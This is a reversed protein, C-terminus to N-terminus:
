RSDGEQFGSELTRRFLERLEAAAEASLGEHEEFLNMADHNLATYAHGLHPPLGKLADLHMRITEIDGRVAPGTIADPLGERGVMEVTAATLPRLAALADSRSVGMEAWMEAALGMQAAVLGCALVASAHYIARHEDKITFPKAGIVYAAKQLWDLLEPNDSGVAASAGPILGGSDRNPFTQLPHMGGTRAGAAQAARLVSVPLAGSCHIVAQGTRWEIEGAVLSIEADGTTIFVVDALDAVEQSSSVAACGPVREAFSQASSFSRSSVAVVPIDARHMAAAVSTGLRGAGVFGIASDMNLIVPNDPAM